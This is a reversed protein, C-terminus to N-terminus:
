EHSENTGYPAPEEGFRHARMADLDDLTLAPHLELVRMRRRGRVLEALAAHITETTTTTGLVQRAENVLQVDLDITTHKRMAAHYAAM